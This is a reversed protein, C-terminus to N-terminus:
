ATPFGHIAIWSKVLGGFREPLLDAEPFLTRLERRRLLRIERIALEADAANPLPGRWGVRRRRLIAVRLPIPLWHWGPALFHPEIPFAFNPTQVWYARGLRRIENAMAVQREFTFLHEIVSNSFVVDFSKSAFRSLDTADGQLSTINAATSPAADLNVLVIRVGPLEMWGRHEWFQPTGGVDLITLPRPLRSSLSEFYRFRRQRSRNTFAAPDAGQAHRRLDFWRFRVPSTM